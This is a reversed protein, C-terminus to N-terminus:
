RAITRIRMYTESVHDGTEVTRMRDFSIMTGSLFDIHYRNEDRMMVGGDGLEEEIESEESGTARMLAALNERLQRPDAKVTERLTFTGAELDLESIHVAGVADIMGANGFPLVDDYYRTQGLPWQFGNLAYFFNVPELARELVWHGGGLQEFTLRMTELEEPPGVHRAMFRELMAETADLYMDFNEMEILGGFEDLRLQYGDAAMRRMLRDDFDELLGEIDSDDTSEYHETYWRAVYYDEGAQTILKRYVTVSSDEAILVGDLLDREGVIVEIDWRDGVSWSAVVEVHTYEPEKPDPEGGAASAHSAYGLLLAIILASMRRM